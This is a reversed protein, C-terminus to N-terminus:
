LKAAASVKREGQDDQDVVRLDPFQEPTIPRPVTGEVLAYKLFDTGGAYERPFDEGLALLGNVVETPTRLRALIANNCIDSKCLKVAADLEASTLYRDHDM